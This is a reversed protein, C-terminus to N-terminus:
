VVIGASPPLPLPSRTNTHHTEKPAASRDTNYAYLGVIPIEEEIACKIEWKEGDAAATNKSVLAIMGDCGKIKARCNSKWKEDYPEKVSMDIFEFPSKENRAQGVLLDRQSQDEAAFAIFVRKKLDGTTM